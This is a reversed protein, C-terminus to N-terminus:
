QLTQDYFKYLVQTKHEFYNLRHDAIDTVASVLKRITLKSQTHWSNGTVPGNLHFLTNTWVLYCSDLISAKMALCVEHMM